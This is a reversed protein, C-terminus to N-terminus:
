SGAGECGLHMERLQPSSGLGKKSHSACPWLRPLQPPSSPAGETWSSRCWAGRLGSAGSSNIAAPLWGKGARGRSESGGVSPFQSSHAAGAGGACGAARVRLRRVSPRVSPCGRGGGHPPVGCGFGPGAWGAGLRTALGLHGGDVLEEQFFSKLVARLYRSGLRAPPRPQLQATITPPRASPSLPTRPCLLVAPAPPRSGVPPLSFHTPPTLGHTRPSCPHEAAPPLGTADPSPKSKRVTM